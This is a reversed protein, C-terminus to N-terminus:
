PARRVGVWPADAGEGAREYRVCEHLRVPDAIWLEVARARLEYGGWHAPREVESGELAATKEAYLRQLAELSEIPRSQPSVSSAIRNGRPRSAFYADSVSATSRSVEGEVRVQRRLERWHFVAAAHPNAALEQGKRSEYNTFFRLGGDDLGRCLVVRVSPVGAATATALAMADPDSVGLARAEEIWAALIRLPNEKTDLHM